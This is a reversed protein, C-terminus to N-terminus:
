LKDTQDQGPRKWEKSRQELHHTLTLKFAPADQNLTTGAALTAGQGVRVPAILQTDSGIHVNDEIITQYKNLGDYNCTITGAGVNVDKGMITDGIYSLHNVKSGKGIVSNKIEVFNGVRVNQALVTGPRLRAFPGIVAKNEVKVGELHCNALVTVEDGLDCNILVCNPGIRTGRGLKINGELVVNVDIAVDNKAQLTGRLDFRKPDCIWVGESLFHAAIREQYFREAAIQEKRDNVGLVEQITNPYFTLIPINEQVALQVIDTLYYEKQSNHCNLLPLWKNLHNVGVLFIGTNVEQIQRVVDSADKEEVIRVVNNENDRVIRGLGTPSNTQVTLLGVSTQPCQMLLQQLTQSSILPVDGYLILVRHHKPISPLAKQVADGTGKQEPQLVWTLDLNSLAEKVTQGEYGYVVIIQAPNLSKATAVVHALMPQNGITHLVKPLSSKMRTGQGAALVVISLDKDNNIAM